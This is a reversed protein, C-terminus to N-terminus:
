GLPVRARLSGTARAHPAMVQGRAALLLALVPTPALVASCFAFYGMVAIM